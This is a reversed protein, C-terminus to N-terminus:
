LVTLIHCVQCCLSQLVDQKDVSYIIMDVGFSDPPRLDVGEFLEDEERLKKLQGSRVSDGDKLYRRNEHTSLVIFTSDAAAAEPDFDQFVSSTIDPAHVFSSGPDGTPPIIAPMGTAAYSARHRRGKQPFKLLPREAVTPGQGPRTSHVVCVRDEVGKGMLQKLDCSDARGYVRLTLDSHVTWGPDIVSTHDGVSNYQWSSHKAKYHVRRAGSSHAGADATTNPLAEHVDSSNVPSTFAGRQAAAHSDDEDLAWTCSIDETLADMYGAGSIAVTFFLNNPFRGSISQGTVRLYFRPRATNTIDDEEEGDKMEDSGTPIQTSAVDLFAPLASTVAGWLQGSCDSGGGIGTESSELLGILEQVSNNLQLVANKSLRQLGSLVLAQQLYRVLRGSSEHFDSATVNCFRRLAEDVQAHGADPREKADVGAAAEPLRPYFSIDLLTSGSNIPELDASVGDSRNFVCLVEPSSRAAAAAALRAPWDIPDRRARKRSSM